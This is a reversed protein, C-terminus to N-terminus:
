WLKLDEIEHDQESLYMVALVDPVMGTSLFIAHLADKGPLATIHRILVWPM